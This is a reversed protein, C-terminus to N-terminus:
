RADQDRAADVVVRVAPMAADASAWELTGGLREWVREAAPIVVFLTVQRVVTTFVSARLGRRPDLGRDILQRTQEVSLDVLRDLLSEGSARPATLAQALYGGILPRERLLEQFAADRAASIELPTGELPVAELTARVLDIIDDDVARTLGDKSGFHHRVLGPAVGANKGVDRVSTAHEGREAYLELASLRLRAASSLDERTLPRATNM